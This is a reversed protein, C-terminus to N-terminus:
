HDLHRITACRVQKDHRKGSDKMLGSELGDSAFTRANELRNGISSRQWRGHREVVPGDFSLGYVGGFRTQFSRCQVVVLVVRCLTAARLKSPGVAIEVGFFGGTSLFSMYDRQAVNM